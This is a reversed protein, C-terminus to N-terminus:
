YGDFFTKVAGLCAPPVLTAHYAQLVTLAGGDTAGNAVAAVANV